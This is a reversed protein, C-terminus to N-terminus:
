YKIILSHLKLSHGYFCVFNSGVYLSTMKNFYNIICVFNSIICSQFNKLDIKLHKIGHWDEKEDEVDCELLNVVQELLAEDPNEILQTVM